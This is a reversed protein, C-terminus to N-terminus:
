KRIIYEVKDPIVRVHKINVPYKVLEVKLKTGQEKRIKGYDAIAAFMQPKINEYESLPVQYKVTVKDPFTRISYDPPLNIVEVPLEISGETFRTVKMTIRVTKDSLDILNPNISPDLRLKRSIDDDVDKLVIKETNIYELKQIVSPAGSVVVISPEIDISDKLQYEDRFIIQSKPHLRVPVKKSVKKNFNFYITDPAVRTIITGPALQQSFDELRQNTAIYYYGDKRSRSLKRMDIWVPEDIASFEYALLRFGSTRVEVEITDVLQNSIVKDKPPNTYRVPVLISGAYQKSLASLLWFGTAIVVCIIFTVLKRNLQLRGRGSAKRDIKLLRSRM